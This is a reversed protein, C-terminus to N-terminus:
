GIRLGRMIEPLYSQERASRKKVPAVKMVKVKLEAKAMIFDWDDLYGRNFSYEVIVISAHSEM